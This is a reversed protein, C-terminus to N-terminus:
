FNRGAGAGYNPTEAGSPRSSPQYTSAGSTGQLPVSSPMGVAAPAPNPQVGAGLIPAAPVTTPATKAAVGVPATGTTVAPAATTIAGAPPTITTTTTITTAQAATAAAAAAPPTKSPPAKPTAVKWGTRNMCESFANALVYNPDPAPETSNADLIDHKQSESARLQAENRCEQDHSMYKSQIRSQAMCGTLGLTLAALLGIYSRINRQM